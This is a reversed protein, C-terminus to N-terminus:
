AAAGSSSEKERAEIFERLARVSVMRRRGVKFTKIQNKAIAAYFATRNLGTASVAEDVNYSLRIPAESM